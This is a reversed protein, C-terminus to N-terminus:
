RSCLAHAHERILAIVDPDTDEPAFATNLINGGLLIEYWAAAVAYRGYTWSMHFGDRCLSIGGNRYDFVTTQRLDQILMGAPIVPLQHAETFQAVASQIRRYMQEQSCGYNPFASHTSDHEYAWTMHFYVKAQPAYTKICDLLSTGYPEYSEPMASFHSAQQVTVLDWHEEMLAEPISIMRKTPFGNLEYAYYALNQHANYAHTELSCGGIYLNVVKMPINGSDAIEKLYRTADQSFSNGIALIKKVNGKVTEMFEFIRNLMLHSGDEALPQGCHPGPLEAIEVMAEPALKKLSAFMLRTEEPRCKMDNSYYMLLLPRLKMGERVFYMPAQRDIRELRGDMGLERLVNFHCCQQASDSIFGAIQEQSVGVDALYHPDMCLMMTLYAGASEGSVFVKGTGGLAPIHKLTYAVAAAADEIFDPFHAQPYMRYEVSVFAYGQRTVLEPYVPIGKRSGGELGGGHFWILTDFTDREPLYIDLKQMDSGNEVYPIDCHQIM